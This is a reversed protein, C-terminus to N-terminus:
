NQCTQYVNAYDFLQVCTTHKLYPYDDIFKFFYVTAIIRKWFNSLLNVKETQFDDSLFLKRKCDRVYPKVICLRFLIVDERLQLYAYWSMHFDNSIHVNCTKYYGYYDVKPSLHLIYM